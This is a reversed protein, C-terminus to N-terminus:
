GSVQRAHEQLSKGCGRSDLLFGLRQHHKLSVDFMRTLVSLQQPWRQWELHWGPVQATLHQLSQWKKVCELPDRALTQPYRRCLALAVPELEPIGLLAAMTGRITEPKVRLLSPFRAATAAADDSPVRLTEAVATVTTQLRELLPVSWWSESHHLLNPQARLIFRLTKPPFVTQLVDANASLTQFDTRLWRCYWHGTSTPMDSWLMEMGLLLEEILGVQQVLEESSRHLLAVGAHVISFRAGM